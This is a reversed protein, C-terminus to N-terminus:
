LTAHQGNVSCAGLAEIRVVIEDERIELLRCWERRSSWFYNGVQFEGLLKLRIIPVMDSPSLAAYPWRVVHSEICVPVRGTAGEAVGGVGASPEIGYRHLDVDGSVPWGASGPRWRETGLKGSRRAPRAHSAGTARRHESPRTPIATRVSRCGCIRGQEALGRSLNSSESGAYSAPTSGKCWRPM